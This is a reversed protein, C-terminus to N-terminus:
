SSKGPSRYDATERPDPFLESPLDEININLLRAFCHGGSVAQPKATVGLADQSLRSEAGNTQTSWNHQRDGAQSSDPCATGRNFCAIGELPRSSTGSPFARQEAVM